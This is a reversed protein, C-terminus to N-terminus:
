PLTPYAGSMTGQHFRITNMRLAVALLEPTGKFLNAKDDLVCNGAEHPPLLAIIEEAERLMMHWQRGLESAKAADVGVLM